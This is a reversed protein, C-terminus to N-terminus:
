PSRLKRTLPGATHFLRGTAIREGSMDSSMNLSLNFVKRKSRFARKRGQRIQASYIMMMLMMMMMMMMMM